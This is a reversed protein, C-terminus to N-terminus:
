FKGAPGQLINQKAWMNKALLYFLKNSLKRVFSFLQKINKTEKVLFVVCVFYLKVRSWGQTM